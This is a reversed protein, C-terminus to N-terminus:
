ETPGPYFDVPKLCWPCGLLFGGPLEVMRCDDRRGAWRCYDNQCAMIAGRAVHCARSLNFAPETTM